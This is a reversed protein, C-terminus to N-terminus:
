ARCCHLAADMWVSIWNSLCIIKKTLLETVKGDNGVPMANFRIVKGESDLTIGNVNEVLGDAFAPTAITITLLALALLKSM